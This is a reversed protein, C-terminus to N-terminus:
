NTCSTEEEISLQWSRSKTSCTSSRIVM